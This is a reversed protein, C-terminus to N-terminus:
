TLSHNTVFLPIGVILTNVLTLLYLSTELFGTRVSAHLQQNLDEVVIARPKKFFGFFLYKEKIFDNKKPHIQDTSAPKTFKISLRNCDSNPTNRLFSELLLHEWYKNAGSQALNRLM